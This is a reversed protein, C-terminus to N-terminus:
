IQEVYKRMSLMVQTSTNKLIIIFDIKHKISTQVHQLHKNKYKFRLFIICPLKFTFNHILSKWNNRKNLCITGIPKLCIIRTFYKFEIIM